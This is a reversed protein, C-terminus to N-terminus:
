RATLASALGEIAFLTVLSSSFNITPPEEKTSVVAHCTLISFFGTSCFFVFLVFTQNQDENGENGKTSDLESL